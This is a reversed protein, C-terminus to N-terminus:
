GQKPAESNIMWQIGFQDKLMGFREAWFTSQLPMTVTGNEGLAAFITEAEANSECQVTVSFNTGAQLPMGPMTDSSMLFIENGRKLAAHMTRDLSKAGEPMGPADSFPMVFLEVGLCKSYFEMAQKCNGAFTLYTILHKM